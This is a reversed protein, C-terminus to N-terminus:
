GTTSMVMVVVLETKVTGRFVNKGIQNGEDFSADQMHGFLYSAVLPVKFCGLISWSEVGPGNPYCVYGFERVVTSLDYFASM